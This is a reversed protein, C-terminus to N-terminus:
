QFNVSDVTSNQKASFSASFGDYLGQLIKDTNRVDLQVNSTGSSGNPARLIVSESSSLEPHKTGNISWSYSLSGLGNSPKNFGFPVALVSTEKESGIRLVSSIAQNFLPGYLPDNVYFNIGPGGFSVQTITEANASSDRPWVAVRIDYARPVIDGFLTISQKGYGSQDELARDNRKWQYVLTKPDYEVGASNAIHPVAVLKIANQYVPSLKGRFSPPVYGDTETIIDISGSGVVLSSKITKGDPTVVTVNVNIKKGLAPAKVQLTTMGTGSQSVGDVVWTVKATNIDIIYSRATLTVTQGPAPNDTSATLELGGVSIPVQAYTTSAFFFFAVFLFLFYCYKM